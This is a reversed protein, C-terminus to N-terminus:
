NIGTAQGKPVEIGLEEQWVRCEHPESSFAACIGEFVNDPTLRGRFTKHNINISPILNHGYNTWDEAMAKLLSNDHGNNIDTKKVCDEVFKYELNLSELAQKSCHETIRNRCLEHM